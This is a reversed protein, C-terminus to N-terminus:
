SKPMDPVIALTYGLPKLIKLLTNVQPSVRMSELRAIAPQKLGSLDALQKQSIGMEERAEILKKILSIEFNILDREVASLLNDDNLIDSFTTYETGNINKSM